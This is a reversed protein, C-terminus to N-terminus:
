MVSCPQDQPDFPLNLTTKGNDLRAANLEVLVAGDVPTQECKKKLLEFFAALKAKQDDISLGTKEAFEQARNDFSNETNFLRKNLNQEMAAISFGYRHLLCFLNLLDAQPKAETDTKSAIIEPYFISVFEGNLFKKEPNPLKAGNKLLLEIFALDVKSSELFVGIALDLASAYMLDMGSPICFKYNIKNFKPSEVVLKALDAREAWVLIHLLTMGLNNSANVDCQSLYEQLFSLAEKNDEAFIKELNVQELYTKYAVIMTQNASLAAELQKVSKIDTSKFLTHDTRSYM